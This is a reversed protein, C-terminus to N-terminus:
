FIFLFFAIITILGNLLLILNFHKRERETYIYIILSTEKEIKKDIHFFHKLFLNKLHM